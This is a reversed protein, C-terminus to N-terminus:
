CRWDALVEAGEVDFVPINLQEHVIKREFYANDIFISQESKIYNVKQEEPKLSIIRYFLDPSIAFHALDEQITSSHDLEHRTLLIIKKGMNRWQYLLRIIPLCVQNHVIITDDYDIYVNQYTYDFRYRSILSRDMRINYPNEFISIERGMAIYASLLPLNVGRARSLCMSGACRCSIELLKFNGHIDKKIQFYWLGLFHLRQNIQDAISRIKDDARVAAGSVSIGALLRDRSRPLVACLKGNSDTLCDVTLEEGPLYETTVYDDWIIDSPIDKASQLLFTGKAGQGERPKIFCPFEKPSLYVRPCFDSNEFLQYTQKKDRCIKATYLDSGIIKASFNEKKEAFYLAVSDHTPFVIDIKLRKLLSEFEAAFNPDKILPLGSYYQKFIYPGHRDLSSAGFLEINVNSCLADHLEISNVEGAPFILVRIPKNM